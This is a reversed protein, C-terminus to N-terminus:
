GVVVVVVAAFPVYFSILAHSFWGKDERSLRERVFVVM